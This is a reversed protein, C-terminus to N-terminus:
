RVGPLPRNAKLVRRPPWRPRRPRGTGWGGTATASAATANAEVHAGPPPAGAAQPPRRHLRRRTGAQPHGREELGPRTAARQLAAPLPAPIWEPQARSGFQALAGQTTERIQTKAEGV